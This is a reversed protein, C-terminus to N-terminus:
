IIMNMYSKFDIVLIDYWCQLSYTVSSESDSKIMDDNHHLHYQRTIDLIVNRSACAATESM